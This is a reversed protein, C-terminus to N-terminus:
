PVLTGIFTRGDQLTLTHVPGEPPDVPSGEAITYAPTSSSSSASSDWYHTTAAHLDRIQALCDEAAVHPNGGRKDQGLATLHSRVDRELWHNWPPKGWGARRYLLKLIALDYSNGRSWVRVDRVAERKISRALDELATRIDVGTDLNMPKDLKENWWLLTDATISMGLRLSSIINLDDQYGLPSRAPDDLDFFAVGIQHPAADPLDSCGELDIMVDTFRPGGDEPLPKSSAPPADLLAAYANPPNPPLNARPCDPSQTSPNM